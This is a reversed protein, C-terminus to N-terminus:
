LAIDWIMDIKTLETPDVKITVTADDDLPEPEKEEKITGGYYNTQWTNSSTAKKAPPAVKMLKYQELNQSTFYMQLFEFGVVPLEQLNLEKTNILESFFEGVEQLDLM